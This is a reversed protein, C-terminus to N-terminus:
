RGLLLSNPNRELMRALSNVSKAAERIDRLAARAESGLTGDARYGGLVTSAEGLVGDLRTVLTPLDNAAAAIADAAVGASTITENTRELLGGERIESLLRDVEGLAATLAGPVQQTEESGILREATALLDSARRVVEELPVEGVGAVLAEIEAAIADARAVVGPVEDSAEAIASAARRAEALVPQLAASLEEVSARTVDLTRTTSTVLGSNSIQDLVGRVGALALSADAPLQQMAPTSVLAEASALIAAVRAMVTDLPLSNVDSLLTDIQAAIGEAQTVIRPVGAVAGSIDSAAQQAQALVPEVAGAIQEVTQRATEITAASNDIIASERLDTVLGRAEALSAALEAPLQQTAPAAVLANASGLLAQTRALVADLPLTNIEALLTELQAGVADARAVVGPVGSIAGSIDSAAQQAQALVPTLAEAIQTVATRATDITAQADEIMGSGRLDAILGQAEAVADRATQPLGQTAPDSLLRTVEGLAATADGLLAELPLGEAKAILGDLSAVADQAQATLAPIGDVAGTVSDAAEQAAVLAETLAEVTGADRMSALLGEFQGIAEQVSVLTQSADQPIRQVGDSTVLGRVDGLLALVENPTDTLAPDNLVRNVSDMVNIASGLLEEIPLANVRNFVGEATDAFDSLDAPTSPLMPYPAADMDLEAEIPSDMEILSIRLGGLISANQLQARLGNEVENGLYDLAEQETTEVGLGMKGPQLELTALLRVGSDGFREEDVLGTLASVKGVNIGRYEVIAGPELGTVADEFVTALNIKPGDQGESFVSSRAADESEFLQFVHGPEIAEGGSITTDFSIGGTVLSALSSVDLQAGSAGFSFSFGSTDWFRTATTVLKSIPARIFGDALVQVGDDSLRLNAIQGVSIGRYLIPTGESLGDSTASRLQITLGSQDNRILPARVAGEFRAVQTGATSDWSGAIFVGSLVTDLGSVGQASVEPRVVWFKADEDVFPAVEKELRVEVLVNTLGDTFTVSEVLGVTVDRYRLQTEGAKVGAANEFVIGILPGKEAYSQWVVALSILLAAVPVAWVLSFRDRLSRGAPKVSPAPPPTDTM